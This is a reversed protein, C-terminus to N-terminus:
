PTTGITTLTDCIAAFQAPGFRDPTSLCVSAGVAENCFWRTENDGAWPWFIAFAGRFDYAEGDHEAFWASSIAVDWQPVDVILWHDADLNCRKRRVGGDRISSSAITVSGDDHEEHIAEVHTIRSFKGTQALRTLAWGLRSLWGDSAHTGIYHAIKM